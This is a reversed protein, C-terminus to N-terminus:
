NNLFKGKQFKQLMEDSSSSSGKSLQDFPMSQDEPSQSDPEPIARSTDAPIAMQGDFDDGYDSRSAAARTLISGRLTCVSTDTMESTPCYSSARDRQYDPDIGSTTVSQLQIELEMSPQASSGLDSSRLNRPSNFITVPVSFSDSSPTKDLISLVPVNLYHAHEISQPFSNMMIQNSSDLTGHLFHPINGVDISINNGSEMSSQQVDMKPVMHHRFQDLVHLGGVAGKKMNDEPDAFGLADLDNGVTPIKLIVQHPDTQTPDQIFSSVVRQSPGLGKQTKETDRKEEIFLELPIPEEYVLAGSELDTFM